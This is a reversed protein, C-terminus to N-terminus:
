ERIFNELNRLKKINKMNEIIYTIDKIRENFDSTNIIYYDCNFEKLLDIWYKFNTERVDGGYRLDDEEFPINDALVIYVRNKKIHNYLYKLKTDDLGLLRFYGITSLLDTDYSKIFKNDLKSEDEYSYQGLVINKMKNNNLEAGVCELYQRAFEPIWKGNYMNAIYKSTTTKGVSEQGFFVVDVSLQKIFDSMILNQNKFLDARVDTGKISYLERKTDFPIHECDLVKAMDNGYPESSIIYDVTGCFNEVINKWYNWFETDNKCKPNQPANDDFHNHIILSNGFHTKFTNIREEICPEKSRTSLIIHLESENLENNYLENTFVVSKAFEILKQHGKTPVLATMLIIYKM